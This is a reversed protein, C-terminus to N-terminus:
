KGLVSGVLNNEREGIVQDGVGKEGIAREAVSVGRDSKGGLWNRGSLKSAGVYGTGLRIISINRESQKIARGRINSFYVWPFYIIIIDTTWMLFIHWIISSWVITHPSHDMFPDNRLNFAVQHLLIPLPPDKSFVRRDCMHNAKTLNNRPSGTRIVIPLTGVEHGSQLSGNHWALEKWFLSQTLIDRKRLDM